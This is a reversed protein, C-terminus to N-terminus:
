MNSHNLHYYPVEIMLMDSIIVKKTPIKNWSGPTKIIVFMLATSTRFAGSILEDFKMLAAVSRKGFFVRFVPHLSNYADVAIKPFRKLDEYKQPMAEILAAPVRVLPHIMGQGLVKYHHKQRLYDFSNLNFSNIHGHPVKEELNHAAESEPEYPVTIIAGVRAVRLIESLAQNFDTVHELTESCLVVDFEGDGFPLHHIDADRADIKFIEQARKCAEASLDSNMVKAGLIQQALYAKFGEAGGIDLLSNFKIHSLAKLIQYTRIYREVFGRESHGKRFGYIPQHAFYIGNEDVRKFREELWVKTELTYQDM